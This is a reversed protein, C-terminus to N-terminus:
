SGGGWGDAFVVNEAPMDQSVGNLFGFGFNSPLKGLLATKAL